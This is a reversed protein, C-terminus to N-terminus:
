GETFVALQSRSSLGLKRFVSKLMQKVTHESLSLLRAIERNRLGRRVAAAVEAERPTLGALEPGLEALRTSAHLCVRNMLRLDSEEFSKDERTVAVAGILKGQQLLPGILVHGHDARPCLKRWTANDVVQAEHLATEQLALARAVPNESYDAFSDLFFVRRRTAGFWGTLAGELHAVLESRTSCRPLM